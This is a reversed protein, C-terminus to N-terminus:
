DSIEATLVESKENTLSNSREIPKGWSHRYLCYHQILFITDFFISLISLMFKVMNFADGTFVPQDLAAANIWIQLFSLIGGTLDLLVNGISWGVTSKRKYNLYVQPIYKVFSIACKCYGMVMFTDWSLHKIPHGSVEYIYTTFSCLYLFVLWAIALKNVKTQVGRDYM